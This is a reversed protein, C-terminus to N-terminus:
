SFALPERLFQHQSKNMHEFLRMHQIKLAMYRLTVLTCAIILAVPYESM